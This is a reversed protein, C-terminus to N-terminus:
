LEPNRHPGALDHREESQLQDRIRNVPAAAPVTSLYPSPADCSPPIARTSMWHGRVPCRMEVPMSISGSLKSRKGSPGFAAWHGNQRFSCTQVLRFARSTSGFLHDSTGSTSSQKM